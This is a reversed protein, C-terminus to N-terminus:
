HSDKKELYQKIAKIVDNKGIVRLAQMLTKWTYPPRNNRRWRNFVKIYRQEINREEYFTELISEDIELQIGMLYWTDPIKHGVLAM